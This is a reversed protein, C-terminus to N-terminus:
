FLMTVSQIRFFFPKFAHYPAKCFILVPKTCLITWAPYPATIHFIIFTNYAGADIMVLLYFFLTGAM